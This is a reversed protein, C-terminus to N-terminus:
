FLKYKAGSLETGGTSGGGGATGTQGSTGAFLQCIIVVNHNQLLSGADKSAAMQLHQNDWGLWYYTSATPVVLSGAQVQINHPPGAASSVPTQALRQAVANKDQIFGNGWSITKTGGTWTFTLNNTTLPAHGYDLQTIQQSTNKLQSEVAALRSHLEDIRQLQPNLQNLELKAIRAM